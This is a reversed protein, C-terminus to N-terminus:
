FLYFGPLALVSLWIIPSLGFLPVSFRPPYVKDRFAACAPAVEPTPPPASPAWLPFLSQFRIQPHVERSGWELWGRNGGM